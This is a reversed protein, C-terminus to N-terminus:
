GGGSAARLRGASDAEALVSSLAAADSATRVLLVSSGVEFCRFTKNMATSSKRGCIAAKPALMIFVGFISRSAWSPTIKSCAYTWYEKQAGERLLKREPVVGQIILRERM